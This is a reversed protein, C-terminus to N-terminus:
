YDEITNQYLHKKQFLYVCLNQVENHDYCQRIYAKVLRRINNYDLKPFEFLTKILTLISISTQKKKLANSGLGMMNLDISVVPVCARREVGKAIAPQSYLTCSSLTSARGRPILTSDSLKASQICYRLFRPFWVRGPWGHVHGSSFLREIAWSTESLALPLSPPRKNARVSVFLIGVGYVCM